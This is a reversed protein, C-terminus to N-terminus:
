DLSRSMELGSEPQSSYHETTTENRRSRGAAAMFYPGTPLREIFQRGAYAQVAEIPSDTDTTLPLVIDRWPAALPIDATGVRISIKWPSSTTRQM